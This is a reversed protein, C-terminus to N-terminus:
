MVVSYLKLHQAYNHSYWVELNAKTAYPMAVSKLNIPNTTFMVKDNGFIQSRYAILEAFDSALKPM